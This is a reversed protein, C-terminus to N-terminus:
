VHSAIVCVFQKSSSEAFFQCRVTILTFFCDEHRLLFYRFRSILNDILM